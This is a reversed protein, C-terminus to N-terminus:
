ILNILDLWAPRLTLNETRWSQARESMDPLNYASCTWVTILILDTQYIILTKDSTKLESLEHQNSEGAEANESGNQSLFRM